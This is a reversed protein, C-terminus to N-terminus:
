GSPEINGCGIVAGADDHVAYYHGTAFHELSPDDFTTEGSAFGDADADLETLTVHVEGQDECTGHHLHNAHAGEPLGILDVVVEVGDGGEGIVVTGVIKDDEVGAVIAVLLAAPGDTGAARTAPTTARTTARPAETAGGDGDGEDDGCAGVGIAVIAAALVAGILLWKMRM